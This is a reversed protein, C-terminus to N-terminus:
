EKGAPAAGHRRTRSKGSEGHENLLRYLEAALSQQGEATARAGALELELERVREALQEGRTQAVNLQDAMRLAESDKDALKDQLGQRQQELVSIQEIRTEQRRVTQQAEYTTQRAHSLDAVLLAGDQNLRTVEDQKLAATQQLQRIEAQLQQVQQEHRRQDQDRQEKASQRYHELAQRAHTHKDELSIRHAENEALREKLGSLQQAVTHRAITEEQLSALTKAHADQESGLRTELEGAMARMGTLERRLESEADAHLQEKDAYGAIVIAARADAEEQLRAALRGVLDQLADSVAAKRVGGGEEAELEKLYKHITTKSGTNGLAVRVADVSPYQAQVLLADRAKKVESKYLGTRAM